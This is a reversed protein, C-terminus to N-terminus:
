RFSLIKMVGAAAIYFQQTSFFMRARHMQGGMGQVYGSLALPIM